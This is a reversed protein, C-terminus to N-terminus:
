ADTGSEYEVSAKDATEQCYEDGILDMVQVDSEVEIVIDEEDREDVSESPDPAEQCSAAVANGVVARQCNDEGFPRECYMSDLEEGNLDHFGYEQDQDGDDNCDERISNLQLVVGLQVQYKISDQSEKQFIVSIIRLSPKIKPQGCGLPDADEHERSCDYRDDDTRPQLRLPRRFRRDCRGSLLLSRIPDRRLFM